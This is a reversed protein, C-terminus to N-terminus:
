QAIVLQVPKPMKALESAAGMQGLTKQVKPDDPNDSGLQFADPKKVLLIHKLGMAAEGADYVGPSLKARPDNVDSGTMGAPLPAAPEPAFPNAQAAKDEPKAEPTKAAEQSPSPSPTQALTRTAFCSCLALSAILLCFIFEHVRHM